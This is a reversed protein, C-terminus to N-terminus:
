TVEERSWMPFSLGAAALLTRLETGLAPETEIQWGISLARVDVDLVQAMRHLASLPPLYRGELWLRAAGPARYGLHQSLEASTMKVQELAASLFEAMLQYKPEM